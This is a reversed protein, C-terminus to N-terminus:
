NSLGGVYKYRVHIRGEHFCTGNERCTVYIKDIIAEVVERDVDKIYGYSRALQIFNMIDSGSPLPIQSEELRKLNNIEEIRTAELARAVTEKEPINQTTSYIELNKANEELRSIRQLLQNIMIDLDIRSCKKDADHISKSILSFAKSEDTECILSIELIKKSLYNSLSRIPLYRNAPDATFPWCSCFCVSKGSQKIQLAKGCHFCFLKQSYISKGYRSTARRNVNERLTNVEEWLQRTVIPEHCDYYIKQESFPIRTTKSSYPSLKRRKGNSVAGM